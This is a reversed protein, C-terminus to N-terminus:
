RRRRIAVLAGLGGLTLLAITGPEPIPNAAMLSFNDMIVQDPSDVIAQMGDYGSDLDIMFGVAPNYTGGQVTLMDLTFTVHTWSGDTSLVPDYQADFNKAGDPFQDFWIAIPQSTGNTSIGGGTVALDISFTLDSLANADGPNYTRSDGSSFGTWRLSGDGM